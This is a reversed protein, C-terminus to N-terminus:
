DDHVGKIEEMLRNFLDKEDVKEIIEGKKFLLGSKKGGAIGIDAARAEGPGNVACGMIAITLDKDMNRTAESVRSALDDLDMQCRGCTPCSIINIGSRLGLVKLINKAVPIEQKPDGTISVRITDGYGKLLLSGIGIASKIVATEYIGAETVGLHLPYTFLKGLEENVAVTLAVDSAKASLVINEFAKSEFYSVYKKMSELMAEVSVGYQDLFEKELSGSNIGIRIAAEKKQALALIEDLAKLPMNGPNIRIKDAGSELALLAMEADFHIDAVLPINIQKKIEKIALAAERSNATVRIIECGLDELELIQKVTAQIDETKTTTMSQIALPFGGGIIRSGIKIAKTMIRDM